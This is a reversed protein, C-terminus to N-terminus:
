AGDKKETIMQERVQIILSLLPNNSLVNADCNKPRIESKERKKDGKKENTHDDRRKKENSILLQNWDGVQNEENKFCTCIDNGMGKLVHKRFRTLSSPPNM